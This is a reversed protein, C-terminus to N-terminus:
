PPGLDVALATISAARANALLAVRGVTRGQDGSRRLLGATTGIWLMGPQPSLALATIRAPVTPEDAAIRGPALAITVLTLAALVTGVSGSSQGKM